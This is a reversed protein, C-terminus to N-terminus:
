DKGNQEIRSKRADLAWPQYPPGDKPSPGINRFEVPVQMDRWGEPPGPRNKDPEWFGSFDPKNDATRPTPAQFNPSGNPLRPVGATPYTLWQGHAPVSVACTMLMLGALRLIITM